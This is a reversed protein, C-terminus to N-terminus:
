PVELGTLTRFVGTVIGSSFATPLRILLPKFPRILPLIQYPALVVEVEDLYVVQTVKGGM